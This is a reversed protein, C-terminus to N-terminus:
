YESWKMDSDNDNHTHNCSYCRIGYVLFAACTYMIHIFFNYVYIHIMIHMSISLSILVRQDVETTELQPYNQGECSMQCHGFVNKDIVVVPPHPAGPIKHTFALSAALIGYHVLCSSMAM